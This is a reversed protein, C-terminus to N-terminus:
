GICYITKNMICYKESRVKIKDKISGYTTKGDTNLTRDKSLEVRKTM